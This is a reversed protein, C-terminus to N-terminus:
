TLLCAAMNGGTYRAVPYFSSPLLPAPPTRTLDAVVFTPPSLPGEVPLVVPLHSSPGTTRGRSVTPGGRPVRTRADRAHAHSTRLRVNMRTRARARARKGKRLETDETANLLFYSSIAGLHQKRIISIMVLYSCRSRSSHLTYELVSTELYGDIKSSLRFTSAYLSGQAYPCACERLSARIDLRMFASTRTCTRAYKCSIHVHAYTHASLSPEPKGVLYNYGTVIPRDFRIV